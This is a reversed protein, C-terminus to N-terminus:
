RQQRRRVVLGIVGLGALMLAYTEPEPVPDSIGIYENNRPAPVGGPQYDFGNNGEPGIELQALFTGSGLNTPFGQDALSAGTEGVEFDSYFLMRTGTGTAGTLHGASDTFRLWDSGVNAAGM